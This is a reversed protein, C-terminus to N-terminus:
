GARGQRRRPSSAPCAPSGPPPICRWCWRISPANIIATFDRVADFPLQPMLAPNMVHATASFLLTDGDPAARAVVETGIASGAGPRNEVVVPQRWAETLAAGLSRALIDTPGGPAYPVVIRVAPRALAKRARRSRGAVAAGGAVARRRRVVRAGAARGEAALREDARGLYPCHVVVPRDRVAFARAIGGEVEAETAITIGEAGFVRGWAAFDPNTLQM